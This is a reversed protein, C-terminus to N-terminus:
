PSIDSTADLQYHEVSQVGAQIEYSALPTITYTVGKVEKIIPKRRIEEQIPDEIFTPGSYDNKFLDLAIMLLIGFGIIALFNRFSNSM